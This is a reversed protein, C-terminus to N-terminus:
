RNARSPASVAFYGQIAFPSLVPEQARTMRHRVQNSRADARRPRLRRVIPNISFDFFATQEFTPPIRDRSRVLEYTQIFEVM